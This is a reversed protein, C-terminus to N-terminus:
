PFAVSPTHLHCELWENLQADAPLGERVTLGRRLDWSSGYWGPGGDSPDLTMDSDDETMVLAETTGHARGGFSFVAM